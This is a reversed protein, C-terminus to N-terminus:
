AAQGAGAGLAEQVLGHRLAYEVLGHRTNVDLKTQIRGRHSEVTRVSLFLKEAIEKNTYGLGILRLVETERRSLGESNGPADVLSAGLQPSVWTGGNVAMHVAQVLEGDAADKVVYGTAGAQLAERVFAADSQMTLVVVRTDACAARLEPLAHLSTAEGMHLDLILVDPRSEAVAEITSPVDGSEGVVEFGQESDLLMHLGARVVAHDDALVIRINETGNM